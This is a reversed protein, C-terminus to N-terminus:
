LYIMEIPTRGSKNNYKHKDSMGWVVLRYISNGIKKYILTKIKVSVTFNLSM